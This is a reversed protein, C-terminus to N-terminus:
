SDRRRRRGAPARGCWRGSASSFAAIGWPSYRLESPATGWRTQIATRIARRFQQPYSLRGGGRAMPPHLDEPRQHVAALPRDSFRHTTEGYQSGLM